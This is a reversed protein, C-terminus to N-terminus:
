LRALGGKDQTRQEHIAAVVSGTQTVVAAGEGAPSKRKGFMAFRPKGLLRCSRLRPRQPLLHVRSVNSGSPSNESGIKTSQNGM